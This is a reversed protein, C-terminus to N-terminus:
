GRSSSRQGRPKKGSGNCVEKEEGDFYESRCPGPLDLARARREFLVHFASRLVKLDIAYTDLFADIGKRPCAGDHLRGHTYNTIAMVGGTPGRRLLPFALTAAELAHRSSQADVFVFDFSGEAEQMSRLMLLSRLQGGVSAGNGYQDGGAENENEKGLDLVTVKLDPRRGIMARMNGAFTEAVTPVRVPRGRFPMCTPGTNADGQHPIVFVEPAPGRFVNELAWVVVRGEFPGVFLARVGRKRELGRGALAAAYHHAHETFYDADSFRPGENKQKPNSRGSRTSKASTVM